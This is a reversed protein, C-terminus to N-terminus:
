NLRVRLGDDINREVRRLLASVAGNRHRRSSINTEACAARGELPRDSREGTAVQMVHGANNPEVDFLWRRCSLWGLPSMAFTGCIGLWDGM